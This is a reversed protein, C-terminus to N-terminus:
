DVFFRNEPADVFVHATPGVKMVYGWVRGTVIEQRDCITLGWHLFGGGCVVNGIWVGDENVLSVSCPNLCMICPPWETSKVVNAETKSLPRKREVTRFWEDIERVVSAHESIWDRMGKLFYYAHHRTSTLLVVFLVTVVLFPVLDVYRRRVASTALILLFVASTTAILSCAVVILSSGLVLSLTPPSEFTKYGQWYASSRYTIDATLGAVVATTFFAYKGWRACWCKAAVLRM